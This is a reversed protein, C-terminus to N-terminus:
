PLCAPPAQFRLILCSGRVMGSPSGKGQSAPLSPLRAFILFLCCKAQRHAPCLAEGGQGLVSLGRSSPYGPRRGVAWLADADWPLWGQVLDLTQSCPMETWMGLDSRGQTFCPYPRNGKSGRSQPGSQEGVNPRLLSVAM